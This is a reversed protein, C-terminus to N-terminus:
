KEILKWSLDIKPAKTDSNKYYLTYSHKGEDLVLSNTYVKSAAFNYDADILNIEYFKLVTPADTNLSFEYRGAKEITITKTIKVIGEEFSNPKKFSFKKGNKSPSISSVDAVWPFEGEYFAWNDEKITSSSIAVDDYPRPASTNRFRMKLAQQKLKKQLSEMDTLTLPNRQAPDNKIDFILFDDNANQINYRVGLTDGIRILQMQKRASGRKNEAFSDYNPTNWKQFYESYVTRENNLDSNTFTPLISKGNTGAPPLVEIADCFTALWDYFASPTENISNEKIRAPWSILTPERMGGEWLDRKIGEFPGFSQFFEPNNEVYEKPLYSEKSPGNDSTFVIMTDEFVNLDKLLAVLDGVQNDIRTVVTAYRKYTDPWAIEATNPNKDHDYTADKYLPNVFSDPKGSATNIIKGSTDLWQLGGKLGKGNPYAQTPLELVAHPTDLSLFLFFPQNKNETNQEMIWNKAKATFLDGTYAKDLSPTIVKNNEYVEKTGRYIGEKPYHEHGDGHRIYGLYYDFGRKLPHAPWDPGKGQGQLGWKGILATKYGNQQLVSGLTYNEEIAKDFQNDRVNAQGQNKGSFLSARSPACVPAGAYHNTLMAGEGALADLNPTSISPLGPTKARLQQYFVGVDGYGLDDTLIFLINPKGIEQDQAITVNLNILFALTIMYVVKYKLLIEKM